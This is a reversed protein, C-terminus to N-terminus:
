LLNQVISVAFFSISAIITSLYILREAGRRTAFVNGSDGGGFAGGLGGGSSQQLLIATIIFIGLVIEVISLITQFDM